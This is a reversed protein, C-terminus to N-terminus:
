RSQPWGGNTPGWMYALFLLVQPLFYAGGILWRSGGSLLALIQSLVIGLFVLSLTAWRVWNALGKSMIFSAVALSFMLALVLLAYWVAANNVQLAGAGLDRWKGILYIMLLFSCVSIIYYGSARGLKGLSDSM